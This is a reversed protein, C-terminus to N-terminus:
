QGSICTATLKRKAWVIIINIRGRICLTMKKVLLERRKQLGLHGAMKLDSQLQHRVEKGRSTPPRMHMQVDCTSSSVFQQM